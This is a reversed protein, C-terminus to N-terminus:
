LKVIDVRVQKGWDVEVDGQGAGAEPPTVHVHAISGWAADRATQGPNVFVRGHVVKAMHILKSSFFCMDPMPAGDLGFEVDALRSATLRGAPNNKPAPHAPFLSRQALLLGLGAEAPGPAPASPANRQFFDQIVPLVPDTSTVAIRLHGGVRLTCPNSALHVNPLKALKAWSDGAFAYPPQPLAPCPLAAESLAPVLVVQSGTEALKRLKEFVVGNYVQEFSLVDGDEGIRLNGSAILKNSTDVLPGLLVVARPKEKAVYAVLSDLVEYALSTGTTFPGSAVVFSPAETRAFARVADAPWVPRPVPLGPLLREAIFVDGKLDTKGVVAVVQGPFVQVSPCDTTRLMCRLGNSSARAGELVLSQENLKFNGDTYSDCECCIRGTVVVTQTAASEGVAVQEPKEGAGETAAALLHPEMREVRASIAAAVASPSQAIPRPACTASEVLLWSADAARQVQAAAVRKALGVNLITSEVMGAPEQAKPTDVGPSWIASVQEKKSEAAPTMLVEKRRKAAPTPLTLKEAKAVCYQRFKAANENSVTGNKMEFAEIVDDNIDYKQAISDLDKLTEASLKERRKAWSAM